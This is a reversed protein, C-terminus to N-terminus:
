NTSRESAYSSWEDNIINTYLLLWCSGTMTYIVVNQRFRICAIRSRELCSDDTGVVRRLLLHLDLIIPTIFIIIKSDIWLLLLIITPTVIIIGEIIEWGLLCDVLSGLLVVVTAPVIIPIIIPLHPTTKQIVKITSYEYTWKKNIFFSTKNQPFSNLLTVM